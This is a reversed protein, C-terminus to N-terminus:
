TSRRRWKIELYRFNSFPSSSATHIYTPTAPGLTLPTPQIPPFLLTHTSPPLTAPQLPPRLITPPDLATGHYRAGPGRALDPGAGAAAGAEGRNIRSGGGGISWQIENQLCVDSTKVSCKFMSFFAASGRNTRSGSRDGRTVATANRIGIKKGCVVFMPHKQRTQVNLCSCQLHKTIDAFLCKVLRPYVHKLISPHISAQIKNPFLYQSVLGPIACATQLIASVEGFDEMWM